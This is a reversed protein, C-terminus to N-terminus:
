KPTPRANPVEIIPAAHPINIVPTENNPAVTLAGLILDFFRIETMKQSATAIYPTIIAIIMIPFILEGSVTASM